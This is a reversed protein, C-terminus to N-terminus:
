GRTSWFGGHRGGRCPFVAKPRPHLRTHADTLPTRQPGAPPLQASVTRSLFVSFAFAGALVAMPLATTSGTRSRTYRLLAYGAALNTVGWVSNTVPSSLGVAPPDAFPTPFENGSLGNVYHPVANSLLAGSLPALVWHYWKTTARAPHRTM